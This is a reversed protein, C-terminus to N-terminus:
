HRTRLREKFCRHAHKKELGLVPSEEDAVIEALALTVVYFLNTLLFDGVRRPESFDELLGPTDGHALNSRGKVYVMKVADAISLAGAHPEGAERPALAAEAFEIIASAKGGAGSLGDVACGYKVVAVFDSAERRAAGIWYLANAWAEVLHPALGKQRSELYVVLIGGAADLFERGAQMEAALSGPVSGLGPRYTSLGSIFRGDDVATALRDEAFLHARGAKTLRRADDMHFLLGVADIALGVITSMKRHSQRPEHGVARITGVWSFSRLFTIATWADRIACGSDPELARRRVVDMTLEGQDVQDVLSRTEQDRVFRNIWAARPRFEVPGVSFAPVRQDERFLTCPIHRDVDTRVEEALKELINRFDDAFDQHLASDREDSGEAGGAEEHRRALAAQIAQGIASFSLHDFADREITQRYDVREEWVRRTLTHAAEVAAQTAPYMRGESVHIALLPQLPFQNLAWWDDVPMAVAKFVERIIMELLKEDPEGALRHRDLKSESTM